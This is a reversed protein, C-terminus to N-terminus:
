YWIDKAIERKVLSRQLKEEDGPEIGGGSFLKNITANKLV